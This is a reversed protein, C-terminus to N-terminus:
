SHDMIWKYSARFVEQRGADAPLCHGSNDIWILTKDTSSVSEIVERGGAPNITRDHDGLMVLVPQHIGPLLARTVRQLKLLEHAAAVALTDYKWIRGSTQPDVCDPPLFSGPVLKIVHKLLPTLHLLPTTQLGPAMLILGAISPVHAGLWLALLGGLSLGAVFVTECHAQLETLAHEVHATWDRWTQRNLEQPITGHGPLLPGSATLGQGALFQGMERMEAASGPFGHILLVGVPGRQYFFPDPSASAPTTM